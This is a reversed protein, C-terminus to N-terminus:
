KPSPTLPSKLSTESAAMNRYWGAPSGFAQAEQASCVRSNWDAAIFRQGTVGDPAETMLWVIPPGMVVPQILKSRDIPDSEPIMRTNAPGGPLLANVTVGTGHLDKAWIVTAAELAAKTPGYPSFGAAEITSYSTVLNVIRGFGQQVMHPAVARALNFPGNINVDVIRRWNEPLVEFFPKRSESLVPGIDQMGVAANNVLGHVAGFRALVEEVVSLCHAADTVDGALPIVRSEDGDCRAKALRGLEALESESDPLDIAVVTAGAEALALAM